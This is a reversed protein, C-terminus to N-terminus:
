SFLGVILTVIFYGIEGIITRKVLDPKADSERIMPENTSHKHTAISGATFAIESNTLRDM